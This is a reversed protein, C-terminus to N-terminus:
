WLGEFRFSATRSYHATHSPERHGMWDQLVRQDVGRNALAYGCSHRLMHPHVHFPLRAAQAAQAVIYHVNRRTMQQQRDSIFFWPLHDNRTRLYRRILRLEDGAIPHETSLSGKLREIWIRAEALNLGTKPISIAESVRLGHRFMMLIMLQNREPYRAKAAGKLLMEIEAPSLYDKKREHADVPNSKGNCPDAAPKRRDAPRQNEQPTM